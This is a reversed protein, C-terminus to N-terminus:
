EKAIVVIEIPTQEGNVDPNYYDYAISAPTQAILPYKAQLRYSFSLPHESSLGGIYVLIQRGTLEYREVTPFAYDEPVDEFRNVLANLDETKVIFGPPIGLDILVWEARGPENLTVTVDVQVTDDVKLETRDYLVEITVM